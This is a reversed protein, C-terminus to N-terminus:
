KNQKICLSYVICIYHTEAIFKHGWKLTFLNSQLFQKGKLFSINSPPTQRPSTGFVYASLKISACFVNEEM